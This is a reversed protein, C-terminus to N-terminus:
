KPQEVSSVRPSGRGERVDRDMMKNCRACDVDEPYGTLWPGANASAGCYARFDGDQDQAHFHKKM